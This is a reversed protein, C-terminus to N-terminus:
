AAEFDNGPRDEPEAEFTEPDARRLRALALEQLQRIRERTIGMFEGVHELTEGGRDAVDLACTERLEDVELHPFNLTVGGSYSEDLYLHHACSVFPCPRQGDICDGRIKPRNVNAPYIPLEALRKEARSLRFFAYTRKADPGVAWTENLLALAEPDLGDDVRLRLAAKGRLKKLQRLEGPTM